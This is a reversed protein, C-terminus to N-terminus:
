VTLSPKGAEVPQQKRRLGWCISICHFEEYRMRKGVAKDESRLSELMKHKRRGFIFCHKLLVDSEKYDPIGVVRLL